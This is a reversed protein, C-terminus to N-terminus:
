QEDTSKGSLVADANEVEKEPVDCFSCNRICGCSIFGYSIDNEPYISYDPNLNEVKDPLTVKLSYGTGGFTINKGKVYDVSGKFVASCYVKDYGGPISHVARKRNPYYPIGLRVLEVRDRKAKHFASLKMLALNPIKSDADVLLIRM